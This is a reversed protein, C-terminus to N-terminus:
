NENLFNVGREAFLKSRLAFKDSLLAKNARKVSTSNVAKM